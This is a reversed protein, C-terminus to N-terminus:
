KKLGNKSLCNEYYKDFDDGLFLGKAIAEKRQQKLYADKTLDTKDQLLKRAKIKAEDFCEQRAVENKEEIRKEEELKIIQQKEISRQKSLQSAYYFGGLVICALLIVAPLIFKEKNIKEEKQQIENNEMNKFNGVEKQQEVQSGKLEAKDIKRLLYFNFGLLILVIIGSYFFGLFNTMVFLAIFIIIGEKVGIKIGRM